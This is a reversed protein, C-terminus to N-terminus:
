KQQVSCFLAIITSFKHEMNNSINICVIPSVNQNSVKTNGLLHIMILNHHVELFTLFTIYVIRLFVGCCVSFLLPNQAMPYWRIIIFSTINPDIPQHIHFSDYFNSLLMQFLLSYILEKYWSQIMVCIM